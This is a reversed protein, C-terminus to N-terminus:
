KMTYLILKVGLFHISSFFVIILMILDHYGTFLAVAAHSGNSVACCALLSLVTISYIHVFFSDPVLNSSKGAEYESYKHAFASLVFVSM